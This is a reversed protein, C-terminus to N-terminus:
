LPFSCLGDCFTGIMLSRWFSSKWGLWGPTPSLNSGVRRDDDGGLEQGDCLQQRHDHDCARHDAFALFFRTFLTEHPMKSYWRCFKTNTGVEALKDLLVTTRVTGWSSGSPSFSSCCVPPDKDGRFSPHTTHLTQCVFMLCFALVQRTHELTSAWREPPASYVEPCFSLLQLPLAAFSLCDHTESPWMRLASSHSRLRVSNVSLQLSDLRVEHMGVLRSVLEMMMM